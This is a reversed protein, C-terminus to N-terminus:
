NSKARKKIAKSKSKKYSPAPNMTFKGPLLVGCAICTTPRKTNTAYSNSCGCILCENQDIRTTEKKRQRKLREAQDNHNAM